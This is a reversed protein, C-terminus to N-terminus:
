RQRGMKREMCAMVIHAAERIEERHGTASMVNKCHNDSTKQKQNYYPM